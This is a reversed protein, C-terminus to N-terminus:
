GMEKDKKFKDMFHLMSYRRLLHDALVFSMMSEVVVVAKPVICADFRGHLKIEKTELSRLDVTKQLKYISPTPKFAIRTVISMGNSIGGLVGGMNNSETVIKGNKVGFEDNAESGRMRALQFGMGFEVGKVAPIAFFARALEGELDDDFPGGLGAPVNRAVCEVIGGISDGDSRVEAIKEKIKEMAEVDPCIPDKSSFLEDESFKAVINGVGRIAAKVAIGEMELIKRGFYGALVMAATLRGSFFGSGRYDNFGFYKVYSTYDSHGPRSIYRIEEYYSSDVDRNELIVVLPAGTTHGKFVGSIIQPEDMERRTSSSEPLGWRRRLLEKMEDESVEIGPPLGEILTGVAVGHSEGFISFRLIKGIM